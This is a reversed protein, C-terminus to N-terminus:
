QNSIWYIMTVVAIGIIVVACVADAFSDEASPEHNNTEQHSSDNYSM